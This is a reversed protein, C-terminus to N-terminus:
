QVEILAKLINTAQLSIAFSVLIGL